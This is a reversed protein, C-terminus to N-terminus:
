KVRLEKELFEKDQYVGNFFHYRKQVYLSSFGADLLAERLAVPADDLLEVSIFELQRHRLSFLLLQEILLAYVSREQFDSDLLLIAVCRCALKEYPFFFLGIFAIPKNELLLTLFTDPKSGYLIWSKGLREWEEKSRQPFLGRSSALMRTLAIEDELITARFLYDPDLKM